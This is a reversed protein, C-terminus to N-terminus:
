YLYKNNTVMSKNKNIADALCKQALVIGALVLPHLIFVKKVDGLQLNFSIIM